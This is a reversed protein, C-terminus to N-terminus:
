TRPPTAARRRILLALEPEARQRRAVVVDHGNGLILRVAPPVRLREIRERADRRSDRNELPLVLRDVELRPLHRLSARGEGSRARRAPVAAGRYADQARSM